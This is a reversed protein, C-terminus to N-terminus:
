QLEKHDIPQGFGTLDAMLALSRILGGLTIM